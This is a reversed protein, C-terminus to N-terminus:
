DPELLHEIAKRVVRTGDDSLPFDEIVGSLTPVVSDQHSIKAEWELATGDIDWAASYTYTVGGKTTYTGAIAVSM